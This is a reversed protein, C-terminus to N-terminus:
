YILNVILTQCITLFSGVSYLLLPNYHEITNNGQRVPAWPALADNYCHSWQRDPLDRLRRKKTRAYTAVSPRDLNSRSVKGEKAKNHGRM